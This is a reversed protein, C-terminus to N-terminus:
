GWTTQLSTKLSLYPNNNNNNHFIEMRRGLIKSLDEGFDETGGVFGSLGSTGLRSIFFLQIMNFGLNWKVEHM